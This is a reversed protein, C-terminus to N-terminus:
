QHFSVSRDGPFDGPDVCNCGICANGKRAAFGNWFPDPAIARDQDFADM